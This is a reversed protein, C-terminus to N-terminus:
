FDDLLSDNVNRFLPSAGPNADFLFNLETKIRLAEKPNAAFTMASLFDSPFNPAWADSSMDASVGSYLELLGSGAELKTLAAPDIQGAVSLERLIQNTESFIVRATNLDGQALYGGGAYTLAEVVKSKKLGAISGALYWNEASPNELAYSFVDDPQRAASQGLIFEWASADWVNGYLALGDAGNLNQDILGIGPNANQLAELNIRGDIIVENAPPLGVVFSRATSHFPAISQEAIALSPKMINIGDWGLEDLVAREERTYNQSLMGGALERFGADSLVGLHNSNGFRPEGNGLRMPDAAISTPVTGDGPEEISYIFFQRDDNKADDILRPTTLDNIRANSIIVQGVTTSEVVGDTRLNGYFYLVKGKLADPLHFDALECIASRASQLKGELYAKADTDSQNIKELMREIREVVGLRELINVSFIDVTELYSNDSAKFLVRHKSPGHRDTLFCREKGSSTNSYSNTFPLLEYTSDFSLGFDNLGKSVIEDVAEFGFLDIGFILSSFSKPAGLHPTAVFVIRHIDIQEGQCGREFHRMLWRKVVLGGMSHAVIVLPRELDAEACLFDAFANSSSRTSARWDYSFPLFNESIALNKLQTDLYTGYAYQRLTVGLVSISDLPETELQGSGDFFLKPDFRTLNGWVANGDSDLLRSGM